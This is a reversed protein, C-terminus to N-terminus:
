GFSADDDVDQDALPKQEVSPEAALTIQTAGATSECSIHSGELSEEEYQQQQEVEKEEEPIQVEPLFSHESLDLEDKEDSRALKKELSEIRKSSRIQHRKVPDERVGSSMGVVVPTMTQIPRQMTPLLLSVGEDGDPMLEDTSSTTATPISVPPRRLKRRKSKAETGPSKSTTAAQTEEEEEEEEENKKRKSTPKTPKKEQVAPLLEEDDDSSTSESGDDSHFSSDESSQLESESADSTLQDALSAQLNGAQNDQDRRKNKLRASM